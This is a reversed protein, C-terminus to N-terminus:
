WDFIDAFEMGKNISEGGSNVPQLHKASLLSVM